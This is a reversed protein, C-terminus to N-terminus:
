EIIQDARALISPPITLGLTRATRLNIVLEVKTPQEVPLDAPKAGKLIKAVYEASRRLHDEYNTGYSILGGEETYYMEGSSVPLRAKATLDLFTKRHTMLPPGDLVYLAQANARTAAAVAPAIDEPTRVNAFTLDLASTAAMAKLNEAAKAHWPTAPNWVVAVRALKPIAEKLLQLRKPALEAMMISLGTVNGGPQALSAVLRSGLPDAVIAMVIPISSTAQKATQTAVTIDAVIVEVNRAVLDAALQPLRAYDGGASRWDLTVDRGEAYGAARLAQRFARAEKGDPTLHALLVGVRRPSSPAQAETIAPTAILSVGLTGLFRRRDMDLGVATLAVPFM